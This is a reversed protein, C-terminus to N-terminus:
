VNSWSLSFVVGIAAKDPHLSCVFPPLAPCAVSRRVILSWGGLETVARRHMIQFSDVLDRVSRYYWCLRQLKEVM